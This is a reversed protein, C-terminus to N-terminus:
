NKVAEFRRRRVFFLVLDLFLSLFPDVAPLRSTPYRIAHAPRAWVWQGFGGMADPLYRRRFFRM